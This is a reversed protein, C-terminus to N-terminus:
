SIEFSKVFETVGCGKFTYRSGCLRHANTLNTRLKVKASEITRESLRLLRVSVFLQMLYVGSQNVEYAILAVEYDLCSTGHSESSAKPVVVM